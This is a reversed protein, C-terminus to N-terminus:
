GKAAVIRVYSLLEESASEFALKRVSAMGGVHNQGTLGAKEDVTLDVVSVNALPLGQAELRGPITDASFSHEAFM